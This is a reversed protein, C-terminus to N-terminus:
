AVMRFKGANKRGFPYFNLAVYGVQKSGATRHVLTAGTKQWVGSSPSASRWRAGTRINEIVM